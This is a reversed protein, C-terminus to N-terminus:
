AAERRHRAWRCRHAERDALEVDHLRGIRRCTLGAPGYFDRARGRSRVALRDCGERARGGAEAHGQVVSAFYTRRILREDVAVWPRDSGRNISRGRPAATIRDGAGSDFETNLDIVVAVDDGAGSGGCTLRGDDRIRGIEGAGGM